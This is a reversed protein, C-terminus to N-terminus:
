GTVEGDSNNPDNGIIKFWIPEIDTIISITSIFDLWFFLSFFYDKIAYSSLVVEIFFLSMTIINLNTFFNDSSKEFLLLRLDDGLLAYFTFFFMVSQVATHNIFDAVKVRGDIIM